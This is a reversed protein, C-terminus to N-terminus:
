TGLHPHCKSSRPRDCPHLNPLMRTSLQAQQHIAMAAVAMAAVAPAAVAGNRAVDYILMQQPAMQDYLSPGAPADTVANDYHPPATQAAYRPPVAAVPNNPPQQQPQQQENVLIRVDRADGPAKLPHVANNNSVRQGGAAAQQKKKICIRCICFVVTLILAGMVVAGVTFVIPSMGLIRGDGGHHSAPPPRVGHHGGHHPGDPIDGGGGGGGHDGHHRSSLSAGYTFSSLVRSIIGTTGTAHTTTDCPPTTSVPMDEHM